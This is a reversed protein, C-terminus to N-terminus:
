FNINQKMHIKLTHIYKDIDPQQIILNFLSNTKELGFCGIIIRYPHVPIQRWNPNYEKINKKTINDFNIMKQIAKNHQQM